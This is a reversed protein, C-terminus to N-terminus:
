NSFSGNADESTLTTSFTPMDIEAFLLATIPYFKIDNLQVTVLPSIEMTEVVGGGGGGGGTVPAGAFGFGSGRYIVQVKDAQVQPYIQQMRTVIATFAASDVSADDVPCPDTECTCETSTCALSGLSSAPILEGAAVDASAFDAEILGPSVPNTVIAMRAGVQTAKEARNADWLFRGADIIGVILLLLLPLTLAFEAAGAGRSCSSWTM